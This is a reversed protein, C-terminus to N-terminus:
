DKLAKKNYKSKGFALILLFINPLLILGITYGTGHGFAKATRIAWYVEIVIEALLAVAAIIAVVPHNAFDWTIIGKSFDPTYNGVVQAISSALSLAVLLWFYNKMGVIKMFIYLNYIPILAKWGPEGAKKFIKWGAIVILIYFIIIGAGLIAFAAAALEENTATTLTNM